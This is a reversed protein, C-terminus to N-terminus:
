CSVKMGLAYGVATLVKFACTKAMEYFDLMATRLEPVEQDPFNQYTRILESLVVVGVIFLFFLM